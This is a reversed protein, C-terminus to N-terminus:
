DVEPQFDYIEVKTNEGIYENNDEKSIKTKVEKIISVTVTGITGRKYLDKRSVDKDTLVIRNCDEDDFYVELRHYIYGNKMTSEKEEVKRVELNEIKAKFNQVNM